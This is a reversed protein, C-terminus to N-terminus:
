EYFGPKVTLGNSKLYECMLELFGEKQKEIYSKLVVARSTECNLLATFTVEDLIKRYRVTNDFIQGANKLELVDQAFESHEPNMESWTKLEIYVMEKKM